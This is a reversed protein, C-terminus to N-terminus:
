PNNTKRKKYPTRMHTHALKDMDEQTWGKQEFVEDALRTAKDALYRVLIRKIELLENESLTRSFHKLIELQTPNLSSPLMAM